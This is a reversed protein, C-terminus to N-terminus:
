FSVSLVQSGYTVSNNATANNIDTTGSGPTSGNTAIGTDDFTLATFGSGTGTLRGTSSPTGGSATRYVEYYDRGTVANWTIRNFNTGNLIAAGTTTNQQVITNHTGGNKFALVKYYYTTTGPPGQPALQLNT